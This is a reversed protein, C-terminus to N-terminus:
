RAYMLGIRGGVINIVNFRSEWVSLDFTYDHLDFAQKRVGIIESTENGQNDTITECINVFNKGIENFPPEITELDFRIVSWMSMNTAGSPQYERPNSNMCFNYCYIGDKANGTTRIWKEIYNYIGAPWMNERYEGDFVISLDKQILKTNIARVNNDSNTYVFIEPSPSPPISDPQIPLINNYPWNTYNSWENRFPSDSRRFRWMYDSVLDRSSLEISATGTVNFYLHEIPQQVLYHHENEAFYKQEEKDLFIYTAM